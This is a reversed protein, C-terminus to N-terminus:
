RWEDSEGEKENREGGWGCICAVVVGKGEEIAQAAEEDGEDHDIGAPRLSVNAGEPPQAPWLNPRHKRRTVSRRELYTYTITKSSPQPLSFPQPPTATASSCFSSSLARTHM